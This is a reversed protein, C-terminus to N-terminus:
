ARKIIIELEKSNIVESFKLIKRLSKILLRLVLSDTVIIYKQLGPVTNLQRLYYLNVPNPIVFGSLDVFYNFGESDYNKVFEFDEKIMSLSIYGSPKAVLVNDVPSTIKISGMSSNILHLTAM